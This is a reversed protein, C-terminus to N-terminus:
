EAALGNVLNELASLGIGYENYAQDLLEKEKATDGADAAKQSNKANIGGYRINTMILQTIRAMKESSIEKLAKYSKKSTKYSEM